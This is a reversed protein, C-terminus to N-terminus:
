RGNIDNDRYLQRENCTENTAGCGSDGGIGLPMEAGGNRIVNGTIVLGGDAFAPSPADGQGKGMFPGAVSLHAWRSECGPPNEVVNDRIVVDKNPVRVYEDSGAPATTGWGGAALYEECRARSPEDPGGDCSRGGFVVEILHSRAGVRVLRNREMVIDRGGNVGLGAGEVDHIDNDRVVVREAEYTLNPPEMFQFGTGQGATFGGTGCGFIENGEVVIDVSGGKVYACWDGADFVTNGAIRGGHVAVFDIVNDGAGGLLSDRIEVDSSQNVKVIEWASRGETTMTANAIRLHDCRECHFADGGSDIRVGDIEVHRVDFMSVHGGLMAAGAGDVSVISLWARESGYLREFYHPMAEVAYNGAVLALRRPRDLPTGKPLRAWAETITRVASGRDAGSAANDGQQPDVWIDGPRVEDSARVRPFSDLGAGPALLMLMVAVIGIRRSPRRRAPRPM